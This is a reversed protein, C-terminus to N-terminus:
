RQTICFSIDKSIKQTNVGEVRLVEHKFEKTAGSNKIAVCNKGTMLTIIQDRTVDELNFTGQYVADRLVTIRDAIKFVEELHHTIFIIAHGDQRLKKMIEFLKNIENYSLSATPEDFIFIKSHRLLATAITIMQQDSIPLDKVPTDMDVDLDVFDLSQKALQHLKKENILGISKNIFPEQGLIVNHCVSIDPVLNLEQPVYSIGKKIASAPNTVQVMEGNILIEGRDPPIVGCLVKM